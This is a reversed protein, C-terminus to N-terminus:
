HMTTKTPDLELFKGAERAGEQTERCWRRECESCLRGLSGDPAALIIRGCNGLNVGYSQCERARPQQAGVAKEYQRDFDAALPHRYAPCKCQPCIVDQHPEHNCRKKGDASFGACSRHKHFCQYCALAVSYTDLRLLKQKASSVGCGVCLKGSDKIQTFDSM